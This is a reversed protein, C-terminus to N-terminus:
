ILFCCNKKYCLWGELHPLANSKIFSFSPLKLFDVQQLLCATTILSPLYPDFDVDEEDLQEEITFYPETFPTINQDSKKIKTIGNFAEHTSEANANALPLFLSILLSILSLRFLIM